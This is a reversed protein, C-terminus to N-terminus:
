HYGGPPLRALTALMVILKNLTQGHTRQPPQICCWTMKIEQGFQVACHVSNQGTGVGLNPSTPHIHPVLDILCPRTHLVSDSTCRDTHLVLLSICRNTYLV